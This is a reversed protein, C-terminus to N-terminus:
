RMHLVSELGLIYFIWHLVMKYMVMLFFPAAYLIIKRELLYSYFMFVIMTMFLLTVLIPTIVEIPVYYFCLPWIINFSLQIIWASMALSRIQSNRQFYVRAGAIAMTVYLFTWIPFLWHLPLFWPLNQSSAYTRM